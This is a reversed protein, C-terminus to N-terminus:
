DWCVVGHDSLEASDQLSVENSGQEQTTLMRWPLAWLMASEIQPPGCVPCLARSLFLKVTFHPPTTIHIKLGEYTVSHPCTCVLLELVIKSLFIKNDLM